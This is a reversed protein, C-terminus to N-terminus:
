PSLSCLSCNLPAFLIGDFDLVPQLCFRIPHNSKTKGFGGMKYCRLKRSCCSLEPFKQGSSRRALFDPDGKWASLSPLGEEKVENVEWIESGM